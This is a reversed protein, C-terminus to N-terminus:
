GCTICLLVITLIRTVAFVVIRFAFPVSGLRLTTGRARVLLVLVFACSCPGFFGAVAVCVLTTSVFGCVAGSLGLRLRVYRM